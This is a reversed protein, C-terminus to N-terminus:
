KGSTNAPRDERGLLVAVRAEDEAQPLCTGVPLSPVVGRGEPLGGLRQLAELAVGSRWGPRLDGVGATTQLGSPDRADLRARVPCRPFRAAPPGGAPEAGPFPAASGGM